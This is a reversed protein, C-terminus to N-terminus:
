TRLDGRRQPSAEIDVVVVTIDDQQEPSDSQWRRIEALLAEVFQSPPMCRNAQMTEDLPGGGFAQGKANEPEVVGDTYLVLRDGPQIQLEREPYELGPLVGLLLGNSEVREITGRGLWLLPPHGAASYKAVGQEPDVVLYAASVLQAGIQPSLIRNLEQLVRGPSDACGTVSQMAVKIMAAILAAPVGHGTVDAVLVGMRNGDLPVFEYFDGAVATMPCYASAVSLGERIPNERPLISFQIERAIALEDEISRLRREGALFMLVAVYGLSFLLVGLALSGTILITRYHFVRALNFYFGELAFFLVGIVVLKRNPLVLYKRCLRPVLIVAILVVLAVASLINNLILLRDKSGTWIFVAIGSLGALLGVGVVVQLFRRMKDLSLELWALAPVPLLLYVISVSILPTAKQLWGPLVALVAPSATMLRTGFMASWLGLWALLRTGQGRRVLAFTGTVVGVFLYVSGFMIDTLQGPTIASTQM